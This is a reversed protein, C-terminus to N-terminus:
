NTGKWIRANSEGMKFIFNSKKTGITVNAITDLSVTDVPFSNLM